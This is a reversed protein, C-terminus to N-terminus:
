GGTDGEEIREILEEVRKLFKPERTIRTTCVRESKRFIQNHYPLNFWLPCLPDCLTTIERKQGRQTRQTRQPKGFRIEFVDFLRRPNPEGGCHYARSVSDKYFGGDFLYKAADLREWAIKLQQETIESVEM